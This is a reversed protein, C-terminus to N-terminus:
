LIIKLIKETTKGPALELKIKTVREKNSIIKNIITNIM